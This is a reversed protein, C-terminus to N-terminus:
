LNLLSDQNNDEKSDNSKKEEINIEKKLIKELKGQKRKMKNTKLELQKLQNGLM